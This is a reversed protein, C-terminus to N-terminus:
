ETGDNSSSSGGSDPPPLFPKTDDEYLRDLMARVSAPVVSSGESPDGSVSGMVNDSGDSAVVNPEVTIAGLSDAGDAEDDEDIITEIVEDVLCVEMEDDGLSDILEELLLPRPAPATAAGKNQLATGCRVAALEDKFCVVSATGNLTMSFFQADGTGEDHVLVWVPDETPDLFDSASKGEFCSEPVMTISVSVRQKQRQKRQESEEDLGTTILASLDSPIQLTWDEPLGISASEERAEEGSYTLMDGKFVVGVRFDADRSTVVLAEVDLAQVSADSSYAEEKLSDAYTEAEDKDEFALVVHSGDGEDVEMSYVAEDETDADFVLVWAMDMKELRQQLDEKEQMSSIRSSLTQADALSWDWESAGSEDAAAPPRQQELDDDENSPDPEAFASSMLPPPRRLRLAAPLGVATTRMGAGCQLCEVSAICALALAVRGQLSCFM